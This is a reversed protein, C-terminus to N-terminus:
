KDKKNKVKKIARAGLIAGLWAPSTAVLMPIGIGGAIAATALTAGTVIGLKEGFEQLKEGKVGGTSAVALM